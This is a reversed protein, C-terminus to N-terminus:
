NIVCIVNVASSPSTTGATGASTTCFLTFGASFAIGKPMLFSRQQSAPVMFCLSPATTGVTASTADVLKVFSASSNATNDIQIMFLTGTSGTFNANATNNATAIKFIKTALPSAQGTSTLTGM